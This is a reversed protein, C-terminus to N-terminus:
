RHVSVVPVRPLQPRGATYQTAIASGVAITPAAYAVRTTCCMCGCCGCLVILTLLAFLPLFILLWNTPVEDAEPPDDVRHALLAEFTILLASFVIVLIAERYKEVRSTRGRPRTKSRSWYLVLMAIVILAVLILLGEYIYLAIFIENLTLTTDTSDLWIGIVILIVLALVLGLCLLWALILDAGGFTMAPTCLFACPLKHYQKAAVYAPQKDYRLRDANELERQDISCCILVGGCSASFIGLGSVPRQYREEGCVRVALIAFILLLFLILVFLPIFVVLWSFENGPIDDDISFLQDVLLITFATLTILIITEVFGEFFYDAALVRRYSTEEIRAQGGYIDATDLSDSDTAIVEAVTPQAITGAAPTLWYIGASWFAGIVWALSAILYLFTPIFIVLWNTPLIRAERNNLTDAIFVLQALLALVRLYLMWGFAISRRIWM